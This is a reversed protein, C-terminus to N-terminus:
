DELVEETEASKRVKEIENEDFTFRLQRTADPRYSILYKSREEHQFLMAFHYPWSKLGKSLLSIHRIPSAPTLSITSCLGISCPSGHEYKIQEPVCSLGIEFWGYDSGEADEEWVPRVILFKEKSISDRAFSIDPMEFRNRCVHISRTYLMFINHGLLLSLTKRADPTLLGNPRTIM